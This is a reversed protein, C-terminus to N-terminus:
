AKWKFISYANTKIHVIKNLDLKNVNLDPGRLKLFPRTIAMKIKMMM